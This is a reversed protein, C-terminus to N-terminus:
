KVLCVNGDDGLKETKYNYIFDTYENNPDESLPLITTIEGTDEDITWAVNVTAVAESSVTM